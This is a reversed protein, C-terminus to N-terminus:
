HFVFTIEHFKSNAVFHMAKINLPEALTRIKSHSEGLNKTDDLLQEICYVMKSYMFKAMIFTRILVM